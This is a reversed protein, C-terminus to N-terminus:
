ERERSELIPEFEEEETADELRAPPDDELSPVAYNIREPNGYVELLTIVAITKLKWKLREPM